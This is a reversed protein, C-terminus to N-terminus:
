RAFHHLCRCAVNQVRDLLATRAPEQHGVIAHVLLVELQAMLEHGHHKADLAWGDARDGGRQLVRPSM